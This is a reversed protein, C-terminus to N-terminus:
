KHRWREKQLSHYKVTIELPILPKLFMGTFLVSSNTPFISNPYFISNPWSWLKDFLLLTHLSVGDHLFVNWYGNEGMDLIYRVQLIQDGLESLARLSQRTSTGWAAPTFVQSPSPPNHTHKRWDWPGASGRPLDHPHVGSSFRAERFCMRQASSLLWFTRPSPEQIKEM